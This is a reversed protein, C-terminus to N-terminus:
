RGRSRSRRRVDQALTVSTSTSDRLSRRRKDRTNLDSRDLGFADIMEEMGDEMQQKQQQFVRAAEQSMNSAVQLASICTSAAKTFFLMNKTQRKIQDQLRDSLNDRSSAARTAKSKAATTRGPPPHGPPEAVGSHKPREEQEEEAAALEQDELFREWEDLTWTQESIVLWSDEDLMLNDVAISAEEATDAAYQHATSYRLHNWVKRRAEAGQDEYGKGLIVQKRECGCGGLPCKGKFVKVKVKNSDAAATAM